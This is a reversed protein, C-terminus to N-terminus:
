WWKKIGTEELLRKTEAQWYLILGPYEKPGHPSPLKHRLKLDEATKKKYKKIIYAEFERQRGGEFGNCRKCQPGVNREDFYTGSEGGSGRGQWHGMDAKKIPVIRGCTVCEVHEADPDNYKKRFDLVGQLRIARSMWDSAKQKPTKGKRKRKYRKAM